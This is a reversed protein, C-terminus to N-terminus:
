LLNQILLREIQILIKADIKWERERKRQKKKKKRKFFSQYVGM